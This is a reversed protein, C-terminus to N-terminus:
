PTVSAGALAKKVLALEAEALPLSLAVAHANESMKAWTKQLIEIMKSEDTRAAFEAFEYRLFVLCACDELAQTEPDTRLGKKQVLFRVRDATAEDYGADIAVQGALEAHMEGLRKRWRLYPVRGEPESSRPLRFRAVHQGRVAIRLADSPGVPLPGLASLMDTMRQGYLMSAPM